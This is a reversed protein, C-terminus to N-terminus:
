WWDQPLGRERSAAALKATTLTRSSSTLPDSVKDRLEPHFSFRDAAVRM